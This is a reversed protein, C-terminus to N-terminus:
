YFLDVSRGEEMWWWQARGDLVAEGWGHVSASAAFLLPFPPAPLPVAAWSAALKSTGTGPRHIVATPQAPEAGAVTGLAPSGGDQSPVASRWPPGWAGLGTRVRLVVEGGASGSWVSAPVTVEGSAAGPEGEVGVPVEGVAWGDVWIGVTAELGGLSGALDTALRLVPGPRWSAETVRPGWAELGKMGARPSDAEGGGAERVARAQGIVGSLAVALPGVVLGILVVAVLVELLIM